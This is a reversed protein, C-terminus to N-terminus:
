ETRGDKNEEWAPFSRQGKESSERPSTTLKIECVLHKRGLSLGDRIVWIARRQSLSVVDTIKFVTQDVIKAGGGRCFIFLFICFLISPSARTESGDSQALFKMNRNSTLLEFFLISSVQTSLNLRYCISSLWSCTHVFIYFRDSTATPSSPSFLRYPAHLLM